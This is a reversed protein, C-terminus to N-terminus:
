PAVLGEVSSRPVLFEVTGRMFRPNIALDRAYDGEVTLLAGNVRLRVLANVKYVRLVDVAVTVNRHQTPKM